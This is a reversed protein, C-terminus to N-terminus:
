FVHVVLISTPPIFSHEHCLFYIMALLIYTKKKEPPNYKEPFNM